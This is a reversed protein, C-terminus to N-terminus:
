TGWWNRDLSRYQIAEALHHGLIDQSDDLDAITRSIKLIKDHARASLNLQEVASALLEQCDAELPCFQKIQKHDMSANTHNKNNKFRHSQRQRALNTRQRISATSESTQHTMLDDIPLTPVDLHIDIRDLLPASIKSLYKQIQNPSCHCAKAPNTYHGCPCPNMACILIFKSPFTLTQHARAITVSQDELPQRLSELVHRSFEPLEDLFLIGNHSLTIEGPKPHSGGGVLATASTTHHPHRFPRSSIFIENAKLLGMISYIKTTEFKEDANMEPLIGPFRKALMSKGSGPPGIMLANHGGAAAVELGRKAHAQGKVDAFDLTDPTKSTPSLPQTSKVPSFNNPSNLLEIVHELTNCAFTRTKAYLSAESSNDMPVILGSFKDHNIGLAIPLCGKVAKLSGDLSLEGMFAYDAIHREDIQESAALIGLAIALDFAAGEKKTHAPSLNITVRKAPYKYGSNRIASRVRERSEKIVNDPLGVINTLPLGNQIDVEITVLYSELGVLAYTHTYSIMQDKKVPFFRSTRCPTLNNTAPAALIRPNFPKSKELGSIYYLSVYIAFPTLTALKM